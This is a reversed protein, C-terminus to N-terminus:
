GLGELLSSPPPGRFLLSVFGTEASGARGGHRHDTAQCDLMLSPHHKIVLGPLKDPSAQIPTPSVGEADGPLGEWGRRPLLCSGAAAQSAGGRTRGALRTWSCSRSCGRKIITKGHLSLVVGPGPPRAPRPLPAHGRLGEIWPAAAFRQVGEAPSTGGSTVLCCWCGVCHPLTSVIQKLLQDQTRWGCQCAPFLVAPTAHLVQIRAGAALGATGNLLCWLFRVPELWSARFLLRVRIALATWALGLNACHVRALCAWCQL